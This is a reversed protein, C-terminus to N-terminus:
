DRTEVTTGPREGGAEEREGQADCTHERLTARRWNGSGQLSGYTSQSTTTSSPLRQQPHPNSVRRRPVHPREHSQLANNQKQRSKCLYCKAYYLATTPGLLAGLQHSAMVGDGFAGDIAKRAKNVDYESCRRTTWAGAGGRKIGMVNASAAANAGRRSPPTYPAKQHEEEASNQAGQDANSTRPHLIPADEDERDFQM